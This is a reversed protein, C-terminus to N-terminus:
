KANSFIFERNQRGVEGNETGVCVLSPDEELFTKRDYYILILDKHQNRM